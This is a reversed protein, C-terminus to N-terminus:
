HSMQIYKKVTRRDLQTIEAVKEYTKHIQYLQNCYVSLLEKHDLGSASMSQMTPMADTNTVLETGRYEHKLLVRRIAQELERVNGPWSYNDPLSKDLRAVIWDTLDDGESGLMRSSLSFVLQRLEDPNEQIRQQLSPMTIVDSSLRYFLDERIKGEKRFEKINKSTASIVRGEFRYEKDSGIPSFRRDQLVNLLKVQVPPSVDGIEDLFLSGHPICRKFIGAHDRVAGTFSGKTHGFLASEILSEPYESLNILLYFDDLAHSFSKTEPNFRMFASSGIARAASGKGTGTDGIVLTSFDEMKDWLYDRYIRIDHTFINNWIDCRLQTMSPCDGVLEATIFYFARRIQYLVAFVIYADETTFGYHELDTVLKDAFPIKVARTKESLQQEILDDMPELYDLYIEHIYAVELLKRDEDQLDDIRKIGRDHLSKIFAKLPVKLENFVHSPDTPDPLPIEAHPAMIQEATERSASFPNSCVLDNITALFDRDARTLNAQPM